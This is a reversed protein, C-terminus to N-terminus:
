LLDDPDCSCGSCGESCYFCSSGDSYVVEVFEWGCVSCSVSEEYEDLVLQESIVEPMLIVGKVLNLGNVNGLM